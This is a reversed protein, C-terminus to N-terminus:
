GCCLAGVAVRALILGRCCLWGAHLIARSSCSGVSWRRINPECCRLDSGGVVFPCVQVVLSEVERRKGLKSVLLPSLVVEWCIPTDKNNNGTCGSPINKVVVSRRPLSSVGVVRM